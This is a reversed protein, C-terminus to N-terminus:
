RGDKQFEGEPEREPEQVSRRRRGPRLERPGRRLWLAARPRRLRQAPLLHANLPGAGALACGAAGRGRLWAAVPTLDGPDHCSWTTICCTEPHFPLTM